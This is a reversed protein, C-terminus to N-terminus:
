PECWAFSPDDDTCVLSVDDPVRLGRKMMFYLAANFLFPEDLILASPPTYAFLSELEAAFGRQSEEWDPLNFEGTQIGNAELEDLFTRAFPSPLPLRLQHRCLIAVRLAPPSLNEPPV